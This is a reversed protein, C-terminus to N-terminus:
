LASGSSKASESDRIDQQVEKIVQAIECQSALANPEEQEGTQVARSRYSSLDMNAFVPPAFSVGITLVLLVRKFKMM